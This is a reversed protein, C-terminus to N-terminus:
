LQLHQVSIIEQNLVLLENSNQVVFTMWIQKLLWNKLQPTSFKTDTKFSVYHFKIEKM